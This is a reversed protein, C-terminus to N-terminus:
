PATTERADIMIIALKALTPLGRIAHLPGSNSTEAAITRSKDRDAQMFSAWKVSQRSFVVFAM